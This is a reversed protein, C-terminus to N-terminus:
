LRAEKLNELLEYPIHLSGFGRGLKIDPKISGHFDTGGSVLLNYRRALDAFLAEDGKSHESYYVEIGEIGLDVLHRVNDEFHIEDKKRVTFPHALIPIGGSKKIMGIAEAVPLRKKDLYAQGGAKLYRNFAEQFSRVTGKKVLLSAFHPRGILEGGAEQLLEEHTIFVGLDRFREIMKLNRRERYERLEKLVAETSEDEPDIFLGVIHLTGFPADASIEVGPVVEFGFEEGTALAERNGATTDHDTIAVAQLGEEIALRVLDRPSYTGDSATTHTHLDIM